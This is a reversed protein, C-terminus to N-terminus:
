CLEVYSPDEGKAIKRMTLEDNIKIVHNILVLLAMQYDFMYRDDSKYTPTGHQYLNRIAWSNDFLSNNLLFNLYDSEQTSYLTDQFVIRDKAHTSDLASQVKEPSHHYGVVGEAFLKKYVYLEHIDEYGLTGDEKFTIVGYDILYQVIPKQYDHFDSLKLDHNTILVVFNHEQRSDDIYIISSQDSYLLDVISRSIDDALYAYKKKTFSSLSGLTPTSTMNVIESDINGNTTLVGYQTRISEEIRFLTAIKNDISEDKNPMNLSLWEIGFEEKSYTSFFWGIVDELRINSRSLLESVMQMKGVTLKHKLGFFQGIKYSNETKIGMHKELAGMEQNPFSPLTSILDDSFLEYLYQFNNLITPYNHYKELWASDIYAIMDTPSSKKVEKDYAEKSSLVAISIKLGGGSSLDGFLKEQIEAIRKKIKLKMQADIFIYKETGKIPTLLIDLYNPNAEESEVYNGCLTLMEQKSINSPIYLKKKNHFYTYNSLFSEFNRPESLFTVKIVNPYKEVLYKSALIDRISLKSDKLLSEFQEETVKDGLKYQSFTAIFDRYYERNLIKIEKGIDDSVLSGFYKGIAGKMVLSKTKLEDTYDQSWDRHFQGNDIFQVINFLELTDNIDSVKYTAPDISDAVAKLRGLYFSISMDYNNYYRVRKGSM